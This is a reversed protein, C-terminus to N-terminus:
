ASGRRLLVAERVARHRRERALVDPARRIPLRRCARSGRTRARRRDRRRRCPSTPPVSGRPEVGGANTTRQGLGARGGHAPQVLARAILEDEQLAIALAAGARALARDGRTLETGQVLDLERRAHTAREGRLTNSAPDLGHLPQSLWGEARVLVLVAVRRPEHRRRQSLHPVALRVRVRLGRAQEPRRPLLERNPRRLVVRRLSPSERLRMGRRVGAQSVEGPDEKRGLRSLVGGGDAESGRSEVRRVEGEGFRTHSVRSGKRQMELAATARATRTTSSSARSGRLARRARAAAAVPHVRGVVGERRACAPHVDVASASAALPTSPAGNSASPGDADWRRRLAHSRGSCTRIWASGRMAGARRRTCSRTPRCPGRYSGARGHGWRTTGFFGQRLEAHTM